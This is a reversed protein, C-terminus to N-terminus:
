APSSRSSAAPLLLAHREHRGLRLYRGFIETTMGERINMDRRQVVGVLPARGGESCRDNQRIVEIPRAARGLTGADPVKMVSRGCLGCRGHAPISRGCQPRQPSAPLLICGHRLNCIKCPIQAKESRFKDRLRLRCPMVPAFAGVAVSSTDRARQQGAAVDGTMSFVGHSPALRQPPPISAEEPFRDDFQPVSGETIPLLKSRSQPLPKFTAPTGWSEPHLAHPALVAIALVPPLLLVCVSIGVQAWSNERRLKGPSMEFLLSGPNKSGRRSGRKLMKWVNMNFLPRRNLAIRSGLGAL